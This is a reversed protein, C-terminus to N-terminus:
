WVRHGLAQTKPHPPPSSSGLLTVKLIPEEGSKNEGPEKEGKRKWSRAKDEKEREQESSSPSALDWEDSDGGAVRYMEGEWPGEGWASSDFYGSQGRAQLAM